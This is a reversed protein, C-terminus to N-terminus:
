NDWIPNYMTFKNAFYLDQGLIYIMGNLMFMHYNNMRYGLLSRATWERSSLNYEWIKGNNDIMFFSNRQEDYVGSSVIGIKDPVPIPDWKKLSDSSMYFGNKIGSGDEGLGAYVKDGFVLAIGGRQRVPFNAVMDWTGSETSLDYRSIEDTNNNGDSGGLIYLSDRYVFSVAGLRGETLPPLYDWSNDTNYVQCETGVTKGDRGGIIYARNRGSCAIATMQSYANLCEAMPMWENTEIDYGFVDKSRGDGLDGGVIYARNNLTFGASFQRNAGSYIKKDTFIDPTTFSKTEGYGTLGSENTAYARVYYVTAGRLASLTCTFLTDSVPIHSDRINPEKNSSSWCIGWEVAASKGGNQLEGGIHVTGDSKISDATIPFTIINPKESKTSITIEKESYVIGFENVAYARAYYKKASELNRIRGTFKGDDALNSCIITDANAGIAPTEEVSWCFGYNTVPADGENILFASLDATTFSTSDLFMTGLKPKGDTTKFSDVNFAFEGFQNKAFARVYYWTQPELDTILCSFTDVSALDLGEYCVVSDQDSPEPNGGNDKKKYYFGLKEIGVGRNKVEGRVKVSTAKVTTSDVELTAVEGIGNITTYIRETESFATDIENIAYAYVYYRTSDELNSMTVTFDHNEIKDSKAFRKNRMNDLPKVKEQTSWCVGCEKIPLGNEKLIQAKLTISSAHIEGEQSTESVVPAKANQLRTDMDPDEVCGSLIWLFSVASLIISYIYKM